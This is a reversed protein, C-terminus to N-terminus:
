GVKKDRGADKVWELIKFRENGLVTEVYDRMEETASEIVKPDDEVFRTVSSHTDVNSFNQLGIKESMGFHVKAAPKGNIEPHDSM